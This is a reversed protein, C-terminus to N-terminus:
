VRKGSLTLFILMCLTETFSDFVFSKVMPVAPGFKGLGVGVFIGFAGVGGGGLGDPFPFPFPSTCVMGTCTAGVRAAACGAM